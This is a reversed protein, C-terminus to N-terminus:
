GMAGESREVDQDATQYTLPLELEADRSSPQNVPQELSPCSQSILAEAVDV